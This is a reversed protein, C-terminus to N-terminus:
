FAKVRISCGSDSFATSERFWGAGPSTQACVRHDTSHSAWWYWPAPKAWGQPALVALSVGLLLKGLTSKFASNEQWAAM